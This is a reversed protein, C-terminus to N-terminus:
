REFAREVEPRVLQRLALLAGVAGCLATLLTLALSIQMPMPVPPGAARAQGLRELLALLAPLSPLPTLIAYLLAVIAGTRALALGRRRSLREAAAYVVALAVLRVVSLGAYLVLARQRAPGPPARGQAELCGCAGCTLVHFVGLAVMAKLWGSAASLGRAAGGDLPPEAGDLDHDHRRPVPVERAGVPGAPAAPRPRPPRPEEAAAAAFVAGCLPCRATEVVTDEPLSLARRCSPCRVTPM